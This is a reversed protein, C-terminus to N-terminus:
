WMSNPMELDFRTAMLQLDEFNPHTSAGGGQSPPMASGHFCTGLYTVAANPRQVDFRTPMLPLYLSSGAGQSPRSMDQSRVSTRGECPIGPLNQDSITLRCRRVLHVPYVPGSADKLIV